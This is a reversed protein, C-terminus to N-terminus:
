RAASVDSGLLAAKHTSSKGISGAEIGISQLGLDVCTRLHAWRSVNMDICTQEKVVSSGTKPM